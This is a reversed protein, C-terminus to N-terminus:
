SRKRARRCLEWCLLYHVYSVFFLCAGAYVPGASLRLNSFSLLSHSTGEDVVYGYFLACWLDGCFAAVGVITASLGLGFTLRPWRMATLFGDAANPRTLRTKLQVLSVGILFPLLAGVLLQYPTALTLTYTACMM